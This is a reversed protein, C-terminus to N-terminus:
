PQGDSDYLLAGSGITLLVRGDHLLTATDIEYRLDTNDGGSARFGSMRSDPITPLGANTWKGTIPDYLEGPGVDSVLIRGDALLTATRSLRRIPAATPTWTATTPDFLAASLAFSDPRFVSGCLGLLRGDSLSVIPVPGGCDGHGSTPRGTWTRTSPDYVEVADFSAKAPGGDGVVLVRGDPLTAAFRAERVVTM